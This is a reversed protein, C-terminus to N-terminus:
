QTYRKSPFRKVCSRCLPWQRACPQSTSRAEPWNMALGWDIPHNSWAGTSLMIDKPMPLYIASHCNATDMAPIAPPMHIGAVEPLDTDLRLRMKLEILRLEIAPQKAPDWIYSLEIELPPQLVDGNTTWRMFDGADFSGDDKFLRTLSITGVKLQYEVSCDYRWTGGSNPALGLEQKGPGSAIRADADASAILLLPFLVLLVYQHAGGQPNLCGYTRGFTM